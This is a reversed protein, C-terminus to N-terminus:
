CAHAAEIIRTKCCLLECAWCTDGAGAAAAAQQQRQCRTLPRMCACVEAWAVELLELRLLCSNCWCCQVHASIGSEYHAHELEVTCCVGAVQAEDTNATLAEYQQSLYYAASEWADALQQQLDGATVRLCEVAQGQQRDADVSGLAIGRM